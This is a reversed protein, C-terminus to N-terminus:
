KAKASDPTAAAPTAVAAPKPPFQTAWRSLLVSVVERFSPAGNQGTVPHRDLDSDHVSVTGSNPDYYSGEGTQGGYASWALRGLSDVLAARLQVMTYPKGSQNWEPAHQEWLDVRVTLLGDCALLKAITPTRLSDLRGQELVGAQLVKLLSDSGNSQARLLERVTNASVWRYQVGKMSQGLVAEVLNATELNNDFTVVPILAIRDVGMTPYDPSTWVTEAAKKKAAFVAGAFLAIALLAGVLLALRRM